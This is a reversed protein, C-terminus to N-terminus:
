MQTRHKMSVFHGFQLVLSITENDTIESMISSQYHTLLAELHNHAKQGCVQM